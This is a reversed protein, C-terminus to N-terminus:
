KFGLIAGLISEINALQKVSEHEPNWRQQEVDWKCKVSRALIEGFSTAPQEIQRVGTGSSNSAGRIREWESSEVYILPTRAEFLTCIKSSRSAAMSKPGGLTNITHGHLFQM